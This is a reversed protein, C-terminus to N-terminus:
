ALKDLEAQSGREAALGEGAKSTPHRINSTPHEIRKTKGGDGSVRDGPLHSNFGFREKVRFDQALLHPREHEGLLRVGPLGFVLVPGVKDAGATGVLERFGRQQRIEQGVEKVAQEAVGARGLSELGVRKGSSLMDLHVALEGIGDQAPEMFAFLLKHRDQFALAGAVRQVAREGPPAHGGHDLGVM